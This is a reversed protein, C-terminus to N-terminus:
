YNSFYSLAIAIDVGAHSLTPAIISDTWQMLLGWLVGYLFVLFVFFWIDETYEVFLHAIAFPFAQIVVATKKGVYQETRKLVLGRSWIEERFANAFSFSYVWPSWAIAERWTVNKANYLIDAMIIQTAFYILFLALGTILGLRLKGKKLYLSDLSAMEEDGPIEGAFKSSIKKSIKVWGIISVVVVLTSFLTWYAVRFRSDPIYVNLIFAVIFLHVTYTISGVFIAYSVHFHKRLNEKKLFYISSLFLVIPLIIIYILLLILYNFLFLPVVIILLNLILFLIIYGLRSWQNINEINEM